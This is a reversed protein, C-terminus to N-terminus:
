QAAATGTTPAENLVGGVRLGTFAGDHRISVQDESIRVLRWGKVLADGPRCLITRGAVQITAVSPDGHVIGVLRIEPEPAPPAEPVVPQTSLSPPFGNGGGFPNFSTPSKGFGGASPLPPPASQTVVVEPKYGPKAEERIPRFPDSPGLDLLPDTNIKNQETQVASPFATGPQGPADGKTAVGGTVNPPATDGVATENKPGDKAKPAVTGLIIHVVFFVLVVILGILGSAKMRDVSSLTAFKM